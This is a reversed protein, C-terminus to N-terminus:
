VKIQQGGFYDLETWPLAAEKDWQLDETILDHIQEINKSLDLEFKKDISVMGVRLKGDAGTVGYYFATVWKGRKKAAKKRNAATKKESKARGGLRGLEQAAKNIM